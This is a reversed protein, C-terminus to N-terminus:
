VRSATFHTPKVGGRRITLDFAAQFAVWTSDAVDFSDVWQQVCSRALDPSRGAKGTLVRFLEGLVQAPILVSEPPLNKLLGIAADRRVIDGIGEAYALINTDIAVRM